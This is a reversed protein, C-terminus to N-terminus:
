KKNLDEKRFESPLKKYKKQFVKTFAKSNAFGNQSAIVGIPLDTNVLDKYAYELRLNDLYSKYNTKAYKQFMRSLYTPSYGFTEALSELSLDKKYNEKMYGTISSLKNLKKNSKVMEDDVNIKRM